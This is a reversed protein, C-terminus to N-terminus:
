YAYLVSINSKELANASREGQVEIRYMYPYHPVTVGAGETTSGGELAGVSSTDSNGAITVTTSVKSTTDYTLFKREMTDVIKSYVTYPSNSAANLNFTVDPADHLNFSASCSGWQSRPTTLKIQMCDSVDPNSLNVMYTDKMYSRFTTGPNAALYDNFGFSAAILDKVVIETGGYAAESVTKYRKLAGSTKIGTTVIYLLAMTMVLALMTFMLSTVLAIGKENGIFRM